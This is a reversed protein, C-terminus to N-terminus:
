NKGTENAHHQQETSSRTVRFATEAKKKKTFNFKLASAANKFPYRQNIFKIVTM